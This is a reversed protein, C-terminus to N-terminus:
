PAKYVSRVFIILSQYTSNIWVYDGVSVNRTFTTFYMTRFGLEARSSTANIAYVNIFDIGTWAPTGAGDYMYTPTTKNLTFNAYLVPAAGTALAPYLELRVSDGTRVYSPFPTPTPTPTPIPTSSLTSSVCSMGSSSLVKGSACPCTNVRAVLNCESNCFIPPTPACHNMRTGDSCHQRALCRAKSAISKEEYSAEDTPLFIVLGILLLLILASAGAILVLKNDKWIKKANM